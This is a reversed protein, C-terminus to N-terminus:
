PSRLRGGTGCRLSFFSGFISVQYSTCASGNWRQYSPSCSELHFQKYGISSFDGDPDHPRRSLQVYRRHRHERLIIGARQVGSLGVLGLIQGAIVEQGRRVRVSGRRLHCYQTTWGGEHALVLGNGCDKGKISPSGPQTFDIDEMGDRLAKVIGPASALVDIGEAMVGLDRIAIDTGKHGNYTRIGCAYDRRGPGPDTDVFNVLWCDKGLSCRIPLGLTPPKAEAGLAPFTAAITAAITAPGLGAWLFCAAAFVASKPAPWTFKMGKGM